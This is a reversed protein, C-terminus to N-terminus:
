AHSFFSQVFNQYDNSSIVEKDKVDYPLDNFYKPYVRVRVTPRHDSEMEGVVCMNDFCKSVWKEHQNEKEFLGRKRGRFSIMKLSPKKNEADAKFDKRDISSSDDYYLRKADFHRCSNDKDDDNIECLAVAMKNLFFDFNYPASYMFHFLIDDDIQFSYRVWSGTHFPFFDSHPDSDFELYASWQSGVQTRWITNM